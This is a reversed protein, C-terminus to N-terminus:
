QKKKNFLYGNVASKDEFVIRVLNLLREGQERATKLDIEKGYVKKFIAKYELIAQQSLM